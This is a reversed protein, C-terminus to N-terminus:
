IQPQDRNEGQRARRDVAKQPLFRRAVGHSGDGQKEAASSEGHSQPNRQSKRRQCKGVLLIECGPDTSSAETRVEREIEILERQHHQQNYSSDSEEDVNVRDTIHPLLGAIVPEEA